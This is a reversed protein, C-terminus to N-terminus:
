SEYKKKIGFRRIASKVAPVTRNLMRAMGVYTKNRDVMDQLYAIDEESWIKSSFGTKKIKQTKEEPEKLKLTVDKPVAKEFKFEIQYGFMKFKM